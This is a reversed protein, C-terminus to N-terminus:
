EKTITEDLNLVVRGVTTWAALDAPSVIALLDQLQSEPMDSILPMPDAEGSGFRAQQRRLFDALVRLEDETPERSLCRRVAYSLRQADGDGGERLIQTALGRACELFLEENLTTLAQLPTNSRNRRACAVDGIPADFNALAPYPVSRYHFTYLARRYKDPGTDFDWAKPAFSAPRQFLFEPAPPYVSPGGLDLEILGSAALAIDRVMEADVRFRPGRELLRNASDIALQEPAVVSSQQYTASTVILRHLHKLSWGHDMLEVALWDLLEPHSPTEGQTGLDEATAVLGSGFYAQWVRNVISRATTPSNRDTLWHAFALRTPQAHAPLPHLFEPVGPTVAEAPQLFDGRELRHTQRPKDREQLVLQSTGRPHRQWLKEISQNVGRFEPVTTRWYSFLEDVQEATREAQPVGLVKRVTHPLSDARAEEATISLRFRGLNNTQTDNDITEGHMQVLKITLRVGATCDLRKDLVFVGKRPVNSRGPGIDLGWATLEDDDNAFEIPGTVRDPRKPDPFNEELPREPPNVDATVKAFRLETTQDPQDVPAAVVKFETLACLGFVSRGPGGHPLSPDNLLELRFAQVPHASTVDVTFESTFSSPAYGAALISGDQQLFHKQGGSSDLQPRLVRWKQQRDRVSAEWATLRERWGPNDARLQDELQRIAALIQERERLEDQPYVTTQAEHCNNLFAFMRYYDTQTLPDYKHSHCQACQITLGLVAKGIADMRDFMAEMRFQEPDIGGEENVMSNRLFGTAVLQDQTAVPMLDGAVQEVVFQDYPMNANLAGIVWDRYMWVERPKDKEFGNSDAYRAADLWVRAWREGFHPSALLRDVARGVAAARGGTEVQAEFEDIEDLTPPLGILDLSLRRLLTVPKAPPSPELHERELRALVFADIPNRIWNSNSVQPKDPRTPPVFAWHQKYEAGAAVWRRLTEIEAEALSEGSDIPPMRLDADDATIRAVLESSEPEGPSVVDAAGLLDDGARWVDLRM